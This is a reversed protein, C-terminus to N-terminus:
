AIAKHMPWRPPVLWLSLAVLVFFVIYITMFVNENWNFFMVQHLWHQVFSGQYRQEGGALFRLREEWTTLPCAIGGISEAAVIGIAVLHALRWWFNRVIKWGRLWGIWILVLGLVVFVVFAFHAILLLDALLQYLHQVPTV